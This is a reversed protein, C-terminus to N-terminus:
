KIQKYISKIVKCCRKYDHEDLCNNELENCVCDIVPIGDYYLQWYLDYGGRAISWHTGSVYKGDEDFKILLEKLGRMNINLNM